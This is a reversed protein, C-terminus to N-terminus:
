KSKGGGGTGSTESGGEDLAAIPVSVVPTEEVADVAVAGEQLDDLLERPVAEFLDCSVVKAGTICRSHLEASDAHGDRYAGLVIGGAIVIHIHETVAL